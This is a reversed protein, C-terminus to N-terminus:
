QYLPPLTPIDVQPFISDLIYVSLRACFLLSHRPPGLGLTGLELIGFGIIVSFEPIRLENTLSQEDTGLKPRGIPM